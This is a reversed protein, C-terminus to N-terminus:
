LAQNRKNYEDERKTNCSECLTTIWGRGRPKGPMGCIECITFSKKEAEDILEFIKDNGHSIYFCLGGYKEKIQMPLPYDSRTLDDLLQGLLSWSLMEKELALSLEYIISFWGDGVDGPVGKRYLLPCEKELKEFQEPTM